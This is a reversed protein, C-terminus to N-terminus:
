SRSSLQLPQVEVPLDELLQSLLTVLAETWHTKSGVDSDFVVNVLWVHESTSLLRAHM